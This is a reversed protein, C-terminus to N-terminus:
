LGILDILLLMKEKEFKDASRFEDLSRVSVENDPYAAFPTPSIEPLSANLVTRKYLTKGDRELKSWRDGNTRVNFGFSVGDVDGRQISEHADNGWSSNPLDLEFRLESTGDFLRLTGSKTNGLIQDTRHCWLSVTPNERMYESFAGPAIVEVFEDGYWDKMVRSESDYKIAGTITRKGDENELQRIELKVPLHRKEPDNKQQNDKKKDM